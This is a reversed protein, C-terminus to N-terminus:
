GQCSQAAALGGTASVKAASAALRAGARDSGRSGVDVITGNARCARNAMGAGDDISIHRSLPSLNYDPTTGSKRRLCFMRVM